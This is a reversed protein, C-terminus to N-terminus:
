RKDRLLVYCFCAIGELDTFGERRKGKVSIADESVGLLNSLKEKIERKHPSIKPEDAILVCDVNEIEFGKRRMRRLAEELFVVSSIGEWRRDEDPFVEGIDAEGLAGLIADTLAHLLVDGDSHGRLGFRSEIRVGGIYLPKGEEFEHSDFGIGVRFGM